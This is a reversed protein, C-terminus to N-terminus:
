MKGKRKINNNIIDVLGDIINENNKSPKKGVIVELPDAVFVHGDEAIMFQLDDISIKKEVLTKRIKGLDDLTTENLFRLKSRDFDPKIKAEGKVLQMMDKSGFEYRQYVLGEVPETKGKLMIKVPGAASVVPLGEAGAKQLLALEGAPDFPHKKNPGPVGVVARFVEVEDTEENNTVFEYRFPYIDKQGGEGLRVQGIEDPRIPRKLHSKVLEKLLGDPSSEKLDHFEKWSLSGAKSHKGVFPSDRYSTMALVTPGAANLPGGTRTDRALDGIDPGGAPAMPPGDFWDNKDAFWAHAADRGRHLTSSQGSLARGMWRVGRTVDRAAGAGGIVMQATDVAQRSIGMAAAAQYLKGQSWTETEEGTWLQRLSAQAQDLDLMGRAAAAMLIPVGAGTESTELGSKIQQLAVALDLVSLAAGAAGGTRTILDYREDLRGAAGWFSDYDMSQGALVHAGMPTRAYLWGLVAEYGGAGPMQDPDDSTRYRDFGQELRQWQEGTLTLDGERLSAEAPVGASKLLQHMATGLRGRATNTLSPDALDRQSERLWLRLVTRLDPPHGDTGFLIKGDDNGRGWAYLDQPDMARDRARQLLDLTQWLAYRQRIASDQGAVPGDAAQESSLFHQYVALGGEGGLHAVLRRTLGDQRAQPSIELADVLVDMDRRAQPTAFQKTVEDLSALDPAFRVSGFLWGQQASTLGSATQLMAHLSVARFPGGDNETQSFLADSVGAPLLGADVLVQVRDPSLLLTQLGYSKHVADIHDLSTLDAQVQATLATLSQVGQRDRARTQQIQLIGAQAQGVIPDPYASLALVAGENEQLVRSAATRWSQHPSVPRNHPRHRDQRAMLQEVRAVFAPGELSAVAHPLDVGLDQGAREMWPFSQGTLTDEPQAGNRSPEADSASRQQQSQAQVYSDPPFPGASQAAREDQASRAPASVSTGDMAGDLGTSVSPADGLPATVVSAGDSGSAQGSSPTLSPTAAATANVVGPASLPVGAGDANGGDQMPSGEASRGASSILFPALGGEQWADLTDRPETAGTPFADQVARAHAQLTVPPRDRLSRGTESRPGFRPGTEHGSEPEAADGGAFPRNDLMSLAQESPRSLSYGTVGGLRLLRAWQYYRCSAAGNQVARIGSLALDTRVLQPMNPVSGPLGSSSAHLPSTQGAGYLAYFSRQPILASAADMLAQPDAAAYDYPIGTCAALAAVNPDVAPGRAAQAWQWAGYDADVSRSSAGGKREGGGDEAMSADPTRAAGASRGKTNGHDVDATSQEGSSSLLGDPPVLNAPDARDTQSTQLPSGALAGQTKQIQSPNQATAAPVTRTDALHTRGATQDAAQGSRSPEGGGTLSEARLADAFPPDSVTDM